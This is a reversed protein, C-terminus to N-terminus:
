AIIEIISVINEKASVINTSLSSGGREHLSGAPLMSMRALEACGAGGLRMSCRAYSNRDRRVALARGQPKGQDGHPHM